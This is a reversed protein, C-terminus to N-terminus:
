NQGSKACELPQSSFGGEEEWEKAIGKSIWDSIGMTSVMPNVGPASPMVSADAVWVNATGHVRGKGDVVGAEPTKAMRCTGMQHASGLLAPGPDAVLGKKEVHKIWLEFAELNVEDSASSSRKYRPVNPHLCDIELAGMTFAIKAATTQAKLVATRDRRSPSYKIRVTRKDHPDQYVCGSDIDRQICVWATSHSFKACKLKYDLAAGAPDQATAYQSHFPLFICVFSPVSYLCEIVPGNKPTLPMSSTLATVASTLIAGEWPNIRESYTACLSTVPHLHLNKGINRNTLGSRHLVLPSHLTGASVIIRRAKLTLTRSTKRDPSTWTCLVGTARKENASDDGFLIKEVFCGQIFEAGNEAADPLWLNAPGQKVCSPCGASCYGCDHNRGGTNQPVNITSLGLRRAGELLMQNPKSHKINSFSAPTDIKAVGMRDCVSDMSAQFQPSTFFPLQSFEKWEERVTNTPQLSASWNITGGGGFTSGAKVYISSDDSLVGGGNEFLNEEGSSLMPFCTSPYHYSKELVLVKLGARALNFATVGAGCGSGIIIADASLTTSTSASTFDHFKFDYSNNREISKPTSPFDLLKPLATTNQIYVQRALSGFTVHLTRLLGLYSRAWNCVIRTRTTLDQDQIPTTSGTLLLSGPRTNLVSLIFALGERGSQPVYQLLKRRLIEKIDPIDVFSEQLYSQILSKDAGDPLYPEFQSLAEDQNALALSGKRSGKADQIAPVFVDCLALLTKWQDPTFVDGDPAPPLAAVLPALKELTGPGEIVATTGLSM